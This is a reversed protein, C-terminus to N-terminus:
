TGAQDETRKTATTWMDLTAAGTTRIHTLGVETLHEIIEQPTFVIGRVTGGTYTRWRLYTRGDTQFRFIGGPKLIRGVDRFYLYVPLKDPFHIFVGSSFVFDFYNDPFMDLRGATKHLHVNAREHLREAALKLMEGSIDVGHVEKVSASLPELLNGIGCGIELVVSTNHLEIKDLIRTELGRVASARARAVDAEGTAAILPNLRARSDWDAEMSGTSVTEFPIGMNPFWRSLVFDLAMEVPRFRTAFVYAKILSPTLRRDLARRM